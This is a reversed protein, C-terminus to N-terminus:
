SVTEFPNIITVGQVVRGNQLDETLLTQCRAEIAATLILSDYFAYGTEEQVLLARNYFAISPYHQCLPLLVLQLYERAESSAMPRIFKRIAVNLFEQVVQSSIIGRQTHLMATIIEQAIKQKEPAAADFSYILINTDLFFLGPQDIVNM